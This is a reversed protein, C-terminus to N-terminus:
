KFRVVPRWLGGDIEDYPLNIWEGIKNDDLKALRRQIYTVDSIDIIKDGNVDRAFFATTLSDFDVDYIKALGRQIFTADSINFTGDRDADGLIVDGIGAGSSAVGSLEKSTESFSAGSLNQGMQNIEDYSTCIGSAEEFSSDDTYYYNRENTNADIYKLYPRFIFRTDTSLTDGYGTIVVTYVNYGNYDYYKPCANGTSRDNVLMEILKDIEYEWLTEERILACGYSLDSINTFADLDPSRMILRLGSSVHMEEDANRIQMGVSDFGSVTKGADESEFKDQADVVVDPIEEWVASLVHSGTLNETVFVDNESWGAFISGDLVPLPLESLEKGASSDEYIVTDKPDNYVYKIAFSQKQNRTGMYYSTIDRPVDELTQMKTISLALETSGASAFYFKLNVLIKGNNNFKFNDSFSSTSANFYMAGTEEDYSNVTVTDQLVPFMESVTTGKKLTCDLISNDYAVKCDINTIYGKSSLGQFTCGDTFSSVNLTIPFEFIKGVPVELVQQSGAYKVTVTATEEANVALVSVSTLVLLFVLVLSIVKKTM